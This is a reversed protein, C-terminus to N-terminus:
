HICNVDMKNYTAVGVLSQQDELHYVGLSRSDKICMFIAPLPPFSLKVLSTRKIKRMQVATPGEIRSGKGVMEGGEGGREGGRRRGEGGREEREEGKREKGRRRKGEREEGRRGEEGGEKGRRGEGVREKERRGM